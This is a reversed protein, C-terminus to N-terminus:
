DRTRHSKGQLKQYADLLIKEEQSWNERKSFKDCAIIKQKQVILDFNSLAEFIPKCYRHDEVVLGIDNEEVIKKMLKRPSVLVPVGAMPYEWLKNPSCTDQNEVGGQYPILGYSADTIYSFLESFHVPPIIVVPAIKRNCKKTLRSQLQQLEQKLAGDGMLVVTWDDPAYRYAGQLLEPLGRQRSFGGHFLAIKQQRPLNCAKHLKGSKSLMEIQPASNRIVIPQATEPYEKAYFELHIQNVVFIMDIFKGAKINLKNIYRTTADSVSPMGQYIEAADYVLACNTATKAAIGAQLVQYDCVEIISFNLNRLAWKINWLLKQHSLWNVLTPLLQQEGTFISSLLNNIKHRFTLFVLFLVAIGSIATVFLVSVSLIWSIFAIFLSSTIILLSITLILMKVWKNDKDLAIFSFHAPQNDEWHCEPGVVTVKYGNQALSDAQKRIRGNAAVDM